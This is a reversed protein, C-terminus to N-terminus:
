RSGVPLLTQGLHHRACVNTNTSNFTYKIYTDSISVTQTIRYICKTGGSLEFNEDERPTDTTSSRNYYWGSNPDTGMHVSNESTDIRIITEKLWNEMPDCNLAIEEAVSSATGALTLTAALLVMRM